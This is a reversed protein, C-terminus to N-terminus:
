DASEASTDQERAPSDFAILASVSDASVEHRIRAAVAAAFPDARKRIEPWEYLVFWVVENLLRHRAQADTRGEAAVQSLGEIHYRVWGADTTTRVARYTGERQRDASM